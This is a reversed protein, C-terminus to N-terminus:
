EEKVNELYVLADYLTQRYTTKNQAKKFELIWDNVEKSLKLSFVGTTKYNEVLHKIRVLHYMSKNVDGIGFYFRFHSIVNKLWLKYKSAFENKYKKVLEKVSEHAYIISEPFALVEDNFILYYEDYKDSFEQKEKWEELGFIFYEKKGNSSHTIGKFDKLVVVYDEDSIETSTGFAYSGCKYILLVEDRRFQQKIFDM